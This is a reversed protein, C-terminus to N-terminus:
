YASDRNNRTRICKSITLFFAKISSPFLHSFLDILYVFGERNGKISLSSIVMAIDKSNNHMLNCLIKLTTRYYNLKYLYNSPLRSFSYGVEKLLSNARVKFSLGFCELAVNNLSDSFLPYAKFTSFLEKYDITVIGQIVICKAIV